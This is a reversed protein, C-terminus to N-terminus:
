DQRSRRCERYTEVGLPRDADGLTPKHSVVGRYSNTGGLRVGLAGAFAAEPWGANPSPQSSADRFTIRVSQKARLRTVVAAIWVLVASLRAPVFDLVDDLRASAWGFERYQANRYGVMSDLTNVAKYTAMAVPGGLALYLLPAIIGDSLNEAVTEEVARVIDPEDLEDTGRGVVRALLKRARPIDDLELARVVAAAEFDLDRIALLTWIWFIALWPLTASVSCCAILLSTALLGV